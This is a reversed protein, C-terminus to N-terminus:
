TDRMKFSRSPGGTTPNLPRGASPHAEVWLLCEPVGLRSAENNHTGERKIIILFYWGYKKYM